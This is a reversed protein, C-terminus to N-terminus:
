RVLSQLGFEGFLHRNHENLTEYESLNSKLKRDPSGTGRVDSRAPQPPREAFLTLGQASCKALGRGSRSM